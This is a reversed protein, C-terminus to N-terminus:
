LLLLLLLLFLLILLLLLPLLPLRLLPLVAPHHRTVSHATSGYRRSSTENMGTAATTRAKNGLKLLREVQGYSQVHQQTLNEVYVGLAPDERVRMQSKAKHLSSKRPGGGTEEFLDHVQENYIELFSADVWTETFCLTHKPPAPEAASESGDAGGAAAAAAPAPPAPEELEEPSEELFKALADDGESAAAAKAKEWLRKTDSRKQNEKGLDLDEFLKGCIRPILGHDEEAMGNVSDGAGMMTYTKGSGTQGYAFISCNYGRLANGLIFGGLDEFVVDQTAFNPDEKDHSWHSYDFTFTRQYMEVEVTPDDALSKGTVPDVEFYARDTVITKNGEMTIVCQPPSSGGLEHKM